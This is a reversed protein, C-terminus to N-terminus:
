IGASNGSEALGIHSASSTNPRFDEPDTQSDTYLVTIKISSLMGLWRPNAHSFACKRSMTHLRSSNLCENIVIQLMALGALAFNTMLM